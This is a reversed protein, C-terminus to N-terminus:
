GRLCLPSLIFTAAPTPSQANFGTTKPPRSHYLHETGVTVPEFGAEVMFRMEESWKLLNARCSILNLRVPCNHM